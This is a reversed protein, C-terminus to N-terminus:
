RKVVAYRTHHHEMDLGVCAAISYFFTTLGAIGHRKFIKFSLPMVEAQLSM